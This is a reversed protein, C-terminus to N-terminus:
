FIINKLKTDKAIQIAQKVEIKTLKRYLKSTEQAKWEPKYQFMLNVRTDTGLNTAIWHLIPKTCCELHNPLVLVRIIIEGHQKAELINTSATTWYNPADALKQACEDPGYKFDLLYIDVFGALLKATISSYYSNSNWVIPVNVNVNKFVQLWHPLWPTPEGGVLNINKCGHCRLQEVEYALAQATYKENDEIWQSITWNQCHICRITCGMTFITGSPILEPEEGTHEFISCVRITNDCGCYGVKGIKRNVKCKRYCLQCNQLIRDTIEIKLDFYSKEPVPLKDFSSIQDIKSEIKYFKNTCKTHESWLKELSYSKEFATPIRQALKFKAPKYNEEVAFYRHFSKQVLQDKTLTASNPHSIKRMKLSIIFTPM